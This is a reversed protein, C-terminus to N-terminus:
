PLPVDKYEFELPIAIVKSPTEYVFQYDSPQGPADVFLYEFGLRGGDAASNSFGGNHEFRSGDAKQLWLRNNFLGQRYSEFAPGEGPMLVAVNVKWTQEDVETSELTVQIDGQQITVDRAALSPFRFTKLAAPVTVDAKVKLSRLAKVGASRDPAAMNINMEAAPNEPRLVVSDSEGMVAPPVKEGRDDEITVGEAKLALLMPRLRPEWAVELQVNGSGAGGLFDRALEVRKLLVRFPGTYLRMPAAPAAAPAPAPAEGGGAMLGISGDNTFFNLSVGAKQAVEDLAEFFPRDVIELDLAPNTADAGFQERLDTILNGTQTQLQKIAESLRLGKGQLTVKSAGFNAQDQATRLAARIRELRQNRDADGAKSPEPLLPLARAGLGILAAEATDRAEVKPAELREVLQAVRDRLAADSGQGRADGGALVIAALLGGVITTARM